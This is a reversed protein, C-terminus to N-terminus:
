INNVEDSVSLSGRVSRMRRLLTPCICINIYIRTMNDDWYTCSYCRRLLLLQSHTKKNPENPSETAGGHGQFPIASMRVAVRVWEVYSPSPATLTDCPCSILVISVYPLPPWLGGRSCWCGAHLWKLVIIPIGDMRRRSLTFHEYIGARKCTRRKYILHLLLITSKLSKSTFSLFTLLLYMM